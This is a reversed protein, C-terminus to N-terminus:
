LKNIWPSELFHHPFEVGSLVNIKMGVPSGFPIFYINNDTGLIGGGYAAFTTYALSYTSGVGSASIKQGVSTSYPIFHIDGNPALVGGAYAV